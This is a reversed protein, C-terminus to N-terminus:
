GREIEIQQHREVRQQPFGIDAPRRHPDPQRLRGGAMRQLPQALHEAIGQQNAGARPHFQRRPRLSQTSRQRLREILHASQENGVIEIGGAALPLKAQHHRIERHLEQHRRQHRLNRLGRRVDPEVDHRPPPRRDEARLERAGDIEHDRDAVGELSKVALQEIGVAVRERHPAAMGDACFEGPALDEQLRAVDGDDDAALVLVQDVAPQADFPISRRM